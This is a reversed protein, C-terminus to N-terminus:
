SLTATFLTTMKTAENARLVILGSPEPLNANSNIANTRHTVPELCFYDEQQPTYVVLFSASFAQMVLEAKHWSITTTGRWDGYINDLGEPLVGDFEPLSHESSRAIPLGAVNNMYICGVKTKVQTGQRQIFYPHLGLGAPMPKDSLNCVEISISMGEDNLSIHQRAEYHWPWGETPEHHHMISISRSDHAEVIWPKQWGFGHIAHPECAMNKPLVFNSGQFTFAGQDIRNSFPVLPFCASNLPNSDGAPMPRLWHQPEGDVLSYFHSISGGCEPM